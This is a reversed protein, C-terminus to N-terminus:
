QGKGRSATLTIRQGERYELINSNRWDFMSMKEFGLSELMVKIVKLSPIGVVVKEMDCFGAAVNDTEESEFWIVPDNSDCVLTDVIIHQVGTNAVKSLVSYHNSIHYLIGLVFAVDYEGCIDDTDVNTVSFQYCSEDMGYYKFADVGRDISVSRAELGRVSKAGNKLAAFSWRGDHSGIDLIRAGKIVDINNEIIAKYREQLRYVGVVFIEIPSKYFLPYEDFFKDEQM